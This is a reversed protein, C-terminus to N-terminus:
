PSKAPRKGLAAHFDLRSLTLPVLHSIFSVSRLGIGIFMGADRDSGAVRQHLGNAREGLRRTPGACLRIQAPKAAKKVRARCAVFVRQQHRAIIAHAGLDLEGDVMVAMIRDADIQDRHADIVEDHLAGFRQKEQIVECRAMKLVANGGSDHGTNGFPALQRAAGQDTALRRFHGAHIPWAVIIQGTKAHARNLAALLQGAVLHCIAVHKQAKRGRANMGVAIRQHPTQGGVFAPLQFAWREKVLVAQQDVIQDLRRPNIHLREQGENTRAPDMCQRMDGAAAQQLVHWADQGLAQVGEDVSVAPFLAAQHGEQLRLAVDLRALHRAGEVAANAHYQGDRGLFGLRQGCVERRCALDDM